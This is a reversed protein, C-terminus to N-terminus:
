PRRELRSMDGDLPEVVNVAFAGAAGIDELWSPLAGLQNKFGFARMIASFAAPHPGMGAEDVSVSLHRCVVGPKHEEHTFTARYGAPIEITWASNAEAIGKVKGTARLAMAEFSVVHRSAKEILAAILKEEAPGILLARTM